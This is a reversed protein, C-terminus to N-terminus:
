RRITDGILDREPEGEGELMAVELQLRGIEWGTALVLSVIRRHESRMEPHLRQVAAAVSQRVCRARWRQWSAGLALAFPISLALLPTWLLQLPWCLVLSAALSVGIRAPLETRLQRLSRASTLAMVWLDPYEDRCRSLENLDHERTM